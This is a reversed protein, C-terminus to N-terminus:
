SCGRTLFFLIIVIPHIHRINYMICSSSFNSTRTNYFTTHKVPEIKINRIEIAYNDCLISIVNLKKM